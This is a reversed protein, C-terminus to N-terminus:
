FDLEVTVNWELSFALNDVANARRGRIERDPMWARVSRVSDYRTNDFNSYGASFFHSSPLGM